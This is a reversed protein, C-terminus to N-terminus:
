TGSAAVPVQVAGPVLVVRVNHEKGDNTLPIKCGPAAAGDLEVSAVQCTGGQKNEVAIKYTTEGHRYTMTYGPWNSPICPEVTFHDGHLKLGLMYEIGLRYLWSASGTYWTWGGRGVHQPHSYIDAVEVYPEAM